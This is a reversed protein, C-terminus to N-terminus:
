PPLLHVVSIVVLRYFSTIASLSLFVGELVEEQAPVPGLLSKSM